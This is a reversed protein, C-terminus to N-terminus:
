FNASENSFFVEPNSRLRDLLDPDMGWVQGSHPHFLGITHEDCLAATLSAVFAQLRAALTDYDNAVGVSVDHSYEAWLDAASEPHFVEPARLKRKGRDSRIVLFANGHAQLLIVSESSGPEVYGTDDSNRGFRGSWAADAAAEVAAISLDAVTRRLLVLLYEKQADVSLGEGSASDGAQGRRWVLVCAGVAIAVVAIVVWVYQM